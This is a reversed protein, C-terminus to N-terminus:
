NDTHTGASALLTLDHLLKPVLQRRFFHDLPTFYNNQLPQYQFDTHYRSFSKFINRECNRFSKIRAALLAHEALAALALLRHSGSRSLHVHEEM